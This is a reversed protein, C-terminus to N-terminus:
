CGTGLLEWKMGGNQDFLCARSAGNTPLAVVPTAVVDALLSAPLRSTFGIFAEVSVAAISRLCFIEEHTQKDGVIGSSALSSKKHLMALMGEKNCEGFLVLFSTRLSVLRYITSTSLLRKGSM